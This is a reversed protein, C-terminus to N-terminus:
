RGQSLQKWDSFVFPKSIFDQAGKQSAEVGSEITAYGTMIIVGMKKTQKRIAELLQIGTMDSLMLNTIVLDYQNRKLANLGERASYVASSSYGAIDLHSALVDAVAKEDDVVLIRASRKSSGASGNSGNLPGIREGNNLAQIAMLGSTEQMYPTYEEIMRSLQNKIESTDCRYAAQVLTRIEKALRQVSVEKKSTLVMIKEHHTPVLDEGDAILEEYLKEGPRLGVYEVPIDEDPKLGSLTIMGRALSDIRVPTGMKLVFIEGGDGIAGAQLILRCAEPITM